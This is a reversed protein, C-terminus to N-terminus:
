KASSITPTQAAAPSEQAQAAATALIATGAALALLSKNM